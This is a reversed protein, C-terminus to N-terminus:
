DKGGDGEHVDENEMENAGIAPRRMLFGFDGGGATPDDM